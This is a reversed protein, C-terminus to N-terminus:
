SQPPAQPSDTAPAAARQVLDDVFEQTVLGKSLIVLKELSLRSLPALVGEGIGVQTLLNRLLPGGAPHDLWAGLTSSSTVPAVEERGLDTAPLSRAAHGINIDLVLPGPTVPVGLHALQAAVTLEAAFRLHRPLTSYVADSVARVTVERPPSSATFRAVVDDVVRLMETRVRHHQMSVDALDHLVPGHGPLVLASGFEALRELSTLYEGVSGDPHTIVTTGRGLITDGTLMSGASEEVFDQELPRDEELFFSVSDSTHGPTGVIRIPTGGVVIQEGGQLVEAGVCFGADVARVPAGTMKSLREAADSHDPHGHTLLILEVEGHAVVAELHDDEDPGPDVVVVGLSDPHRIVYTNTGDLVMPGANRALVRSVLATVRASAVEQVQVTMANGWTNMVRM